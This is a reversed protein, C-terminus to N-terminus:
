SAKLTFRLSIICLVICGLNFIIHQQWSLTSIVGGCSCPLNTQTSVMVALYCTFLVLLLLACLLGYLRTTNFLLLGAVLLEALPIAMAWFRPLYQLVPYHKLQAYFTAFGALKSSATYTFLFVLGVYLAAAISNKKM